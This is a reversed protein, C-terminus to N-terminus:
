RWGPTATRTKWFQTSTPRSPMPMVNREMPSCSARASTSPTSRVTRASMGARLWVVRLVTQPSTSSDQAYMEGAYLHPNLDRIDRYNVFILDEKTNESSTTTEAAASDAAATSASDSASSGCGSLVATGLLGALLLTGWRKKM